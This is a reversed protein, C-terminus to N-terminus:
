MKKKARRVNLFENHGAGFNSSGKVYEQYANESGKQMVELEPRTKALKEFLKRNNIREVALLQEYKKWASEQAQLQLFKANEQKLKAIDLDKTDLMRSVAENEEINHHIFQMYEAILEQFPDCCYRTSEM